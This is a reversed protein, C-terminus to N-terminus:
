SGRHPLGSRWPGRADPVARRDGHEHQMLDSCERAPPSRVAQGPAAGAPGLMTGLHPAPPGGPPGARIALDDRNEPSPGASAGALETRAPRKGDAADAPSSGSVVVSALDCVNLVANLDRDMVLGRVEGHHTRQALTECGRRRISRSTVNASTAGSACAAVSAAYWALHSRYPLDTATVGEDTATSPKVRVTKHLDSCPIVIM